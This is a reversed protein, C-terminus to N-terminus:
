DKINCLPAWELVNATNDGEVEGQPDDYIPMLPHRTSNKYHLVQYGPHHSIKALVVTGLPPAETAPHFELEM